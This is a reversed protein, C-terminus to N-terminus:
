RRAGLSTPLINVMDVLEVSGKFRIMCRVAITMMHVPKYPVYGTRGWRFLGLKYIAVEIPDSTVEHVPPTRYIAALDNGGVATGQLHHGGEATLGSPVADRQGESISATM